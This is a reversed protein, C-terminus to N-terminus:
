KIKEAFFQGLKEIGEEMREYPASTFNLRVTHQGDEEHIFFGPTPMYAIHYNDLADELMALADYRKPDGPLKLWTFMGGDIDVWNLESPFYKKLANEMKNWRDSYLKIISDIQGPLLDQRMYEEAICQVLCPTHLDTGCKVYYLTPYLEKPPIILALRMGPSLIKSFSCVLIVKDANDFYKIPPIAEGRFRLDSYPDDEIVYFDYQAALEAVRKRREYSLTRGTPNQFTPIIYLLKPNYKKIKEELDEPIVGDDDSDVGVLNAQAMTLQSMTGGFTPNEVLVTDGPNLIAKFIVDFAQTSGTSVIINDARVDKLNKYPCIYKEIATEIFSTLGNSAGYQLATIGKELMVKRSIEALQEIPFSEQSPYGAAFSIVKPDAFRPQLVRLLNPRRVEVSKSLEIM